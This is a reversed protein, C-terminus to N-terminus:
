EAEKINSIDTSATMSYNTHYIVFGPKAGATKKLHKKQIYDIEVKETGEAKSFHAALSAAEEFTKDPIEQGNTKVIVHSGPLKKA